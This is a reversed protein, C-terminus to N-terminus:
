FTPVVYANAGNAFYLVAAATRNWAGAGFYAEMQDAYLPYDALRNAVRLGRLAVNPHERWCLPKTAEGADYVLAYAAPVWSKVHVEAAGLLGIARNDIRSNDLTAGPADASRLILRPDLYPNFDAFARVATESARNIALVLRNGHGHEIVDNILALCAAQTLTASNLWDYHTHTAGDFVEGNPGDPIPQSDANVLRRITLDAAPPVLQDRFVYNANGFL